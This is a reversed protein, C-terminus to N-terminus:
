CTLNKDGSAGHERSSTVLAPPICHSGWSQGAGWGWDLAPHFLADKSGAEEKELRRRKKQQSMSEQCNRQHTVMCPEKCLLNYIYLRLRDSSTKSFFPYM